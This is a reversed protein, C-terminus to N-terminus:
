ENIHLKSSDNTVVLKCHQGLIIARNDDIHGSPFHFAIPIKTYQFHSSIIEEISHGFPVDTDELDTMGGIILGNIKNFIGAKRLAYFMRDIQYLHEGIDELFLISNNYDPQDDTGVLSYVISLNGGILKGTAEGIKNNLHFPASIAYKEGEMAHFLTDIAEKSNKEFNFPMSGHISSLGFRQIRQHFVTIDSFGVLWKPNRIFGAWNIYDVIRISGYGGRACFIAKVAPNDLAEQMDDLREFDTGAFYHHRGLAHKGIVAKFGRTEILIQAKKISEEDAAKAPSVIAILDGPRLPQITYNV